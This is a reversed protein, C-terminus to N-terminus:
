RREREQPRGARNRAGAKQHFCCPTSHEDVAPHELPQLLQPQAVPGVRRHRRGGDVGHDEGVGVKIVAAHQRPQDRLTELPADEACGAGLVQARQHQRIGSPQLLFLGIARVAAAVRPVLRGPREEGLLLRDDGERAKLGDPILARDRHSRSEFGLEDGGAMQEAGGVDAHPTSVAAAACHDETTVKTAVVPGDQLVRRRTRAGIDQQHFGGIAIPLVQVAVLELTEGGDDVLRCLLLALEDNRRKRDAPDLFDEVRDLLELVGPLDLRQGNVHITRHRELRQLEILAVGILEVVVDGDAAALHACEACGTERRDGRRLFGPIHHLAGARGDDDRRAAHGGAPSDQVVQGFPQGVGPIRHKEDAELRGTGAPPLQYFTGLLHLIWPCNTGTSALISFSLPIDACASALSITRQSRM